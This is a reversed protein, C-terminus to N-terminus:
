VSYTGSWLGAFFHRANVGLVRSSYGGEQVVLTPIHLKGIMSGNAELDRSNMLWSGTPDGKVTDLGLPVVLFRPHFRSIKKLADALIESM